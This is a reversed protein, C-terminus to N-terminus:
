TGKVLSLTDFVMINRQATIASYLICKSGINLPYSYEVNKIPSTITPYITPFNTKRRCTLQAM